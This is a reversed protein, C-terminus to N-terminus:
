SLRSATAAPSDMLLAGDLRVLEDVVVDRTPPALMTKHIGGVPLRNVRLCRSEWGLDPAAPDHLPDDTVFLWVAMPLVGSPVNGFARRRNLAIVGQSVIRYTQASGFRRVSELLMRVVSTARYRVAIPAARVAIANLLYRAVGGHEAPGSRLRAGLGRRVRKAANLQYSSAGVAGDLLIVTEVAIGSALLRRAAEAALKSGYSYGVLWLRRQPGLRRIADIVAAFYRTADYDGALADGGVRPDIAIACFHRALVRYFGSTNVDDGWMGPFFVIMPGAGNPAPESTASRALREMLESPRTELGLTGVAVPRGLLAELRVLLELGKLSDGGAADFPSDADFSEASLVSTWAQRVSVSTASAQPAAMTRGSPMQRGDLAALEMLDVKGTPLRPLAALMFFHTPRMPASLHERCWGRLQEDTIAAGAAPSCYAVLVTGDASQRAIVSVEAVSPCGGLVTEVEGLHITNGRVKVQRDRRGIFELLGNPLFRGFDGTRYRTMGPFTTSPCFRAQTLAEDRWYGVALTASTVCIEGIAGPLVAAGDDGILELAVGDLPRGVPVLPPDLKTKHDICWAVYTSTETTGVAVVLRCTEAFRRRYLEVDSFLIRESGFRVWRVGRALNAIEADESGFLTRFTSPVMLYVTPRLESLLEVAANLGIRKLDIIGVQAGVFLADLAFKVAAAGCMSHLLPIRDDSRLASEPVSYELRYSLSQESICVGKPEDTSGSTFSIMFIQDSSVSALPPSPDANKTRSASVSVQRVTPAIRRMLLATEADVIVTGLGARGIIRRNREEPHGDDLPVSTRGALLLAVIAVVYTACSPLLIGVPLEPNPLAKIEESLATAWCILEKYTLKTTGDYVAVRDGSSTAHAAIAEVIPM